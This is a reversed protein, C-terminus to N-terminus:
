IPSFLFTASFFFFIISITFLTLIISSLFPFAYLYSSHFFPFSSPLHFPILSYQSLYLCQSLFSSVFIFVLIFSTLYFFYRLFYALLPLILPLLARDCFLDYPLPVLRVVQGNSVSILRAAGASRQTYAVCVSSPFRLVFYSCTVRFLPPSKSKILLAPSGKELLQM